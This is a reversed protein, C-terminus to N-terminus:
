RFAEELLRTVEVIAAARAAPNTGVHAYGTGNRTFALGKRIRVPSNPADFGHYADPYMVLRIAGKDRMAECPEPPTWDDAAGILVNPKLRVQWEPSELPVRCGPYFAIAIRFPPSEARKTDGVTWLTTSGGHSWGVLAIRSKDVFPQASLWHAAGYADGARIRPTISRKRTECISGLGRSGLSDVMVVSYGAGVWRGAWDMERSSIRGKSTFLGNCGHMAVIAPRRGAAQPRMLYGTITTGAGDASPFTVSVPEAGAASATGAIVAALAAAARMARSM